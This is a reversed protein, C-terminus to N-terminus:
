WHGTGDIVRHPLGAGLNQLSFPYDNAPTVVALRAASM